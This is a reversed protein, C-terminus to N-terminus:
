TAPSASVQRVSRASPPTSASVTRAVTSGSHAQWGEEPEPKARSAETNKQKELEKGDDFRFALLRVLAMEFASRQDPVFSMDQLSKLVLQYYLQVTEKDLGNALRAALENGHLIDQVQQPVAQALAARQLLSLIETLVAQYDPGFASLDAIAKLLSKGDTSVIAEIVASLNVYDVTGLMERVQTEHLQGSGHSIAQDLLSLGDRMSGAAAQALLQVSAEDNSIGEEKLIRSLQGSIQDIGLHRLNFQICRSLVTVPLKKPETTAMLFKVHPPPEELTKLLANFSHNSFMHIEDILYVKFRGASPGYQVKDMMERTEEVKSRSAADVEILDIFSGQDIDRCAACEGCPVTRVGKECNLCKAMIRALTTKGVGRTGSFLYAHHLRGSDLSHSLVRRVHSQGVMESLLRPRWKRALVQYSM